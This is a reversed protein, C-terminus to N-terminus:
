GADNTRIRAVITINSRLLEVCDVEPYEERIIAAIAATRATDLGHSDENRLVFYRIVDAKYPGEAFMVRLVHSGDGAKYM